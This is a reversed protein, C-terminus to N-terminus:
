KKYDIIGHDVKFGTDNQLNLISFDDYNLIFNTQTFLDEDTVSFGKLSYDLREFYDVLTMPKGTGIFYNSKNKGHLGILYYAMSLDKISILDFLETNKPPEVNEGNFIKKLSSCIYGKLSFDDNYVASFRTHIYDIKELYAVMLSMDRSSLKAVAYLGQDSHYKDIKWNNELYKEVFTEELSGSNIFKTCRLKKAIKVANACYSVNKLQDDFSGDTLTKLGSWAFHYFVCSEGVNWSIEDLKQPLLDINELDLQCYTLNKNPSTLYSESIPKEKRGIALVKIGKSLLENIVNSGILGTSGTVIAKKM